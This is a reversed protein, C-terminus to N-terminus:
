KTPEKHSAPISAKGLDTRTQAIRKEIEQLEKVADAIIKENKAIRERLKAIKETREETGSDAREDKEGGEGKTDGVLEKPRKVSELSAEQAAERQAYTSHTATLDQSVETESRRAKLVIKTYRPGPTCSVEEITIPEGDVAQPILDISFEVLYSAGDKIEVAPWLSEDEGFGREVQLYFFNADTQSSQLVSELQASLGLKGAIKLVDDKSINIRDLDVSRVLLKGSERVGNLRGYTEYEQASKKRNPFLEVLLYGRQERPMEGFELPKRQEPPKAIERVLAIAEEGSMNYFRPKRSHNLLQILEKYRATEEEPLCGKSFKNLIMQLGHLVNTKKVKESVHREEVVGDVDRFGTSNWDLVVLRGNEPIYYFDDLKRDTTQLNLAFVVELIEMYQRLVDKAREQHSQFVKEMESGSMHSSEEMFELVLAPKENIEILRAAPFHSPTGPFMEEQKAQLLHIVKEEDIIHPEWSEKLPIKVAVPLRMGDSMTLDAQLVRSTAGFGLENDREYKAKRIELSFKVGPEAWSKPQDTTKIIPEKLIKDGSAIVSSQDIKTPRPEM